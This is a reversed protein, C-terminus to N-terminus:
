IRPVMLFYKEVPKSLASLNFNDSAETVDKLTGDKFRIRITEDERDYASNSLKGSLVFFASDAESIGMSKSVKFRYEAIEVESAPEKSIRIKPLRRDVMMSSLEALVKDSHGVWVKIAGM